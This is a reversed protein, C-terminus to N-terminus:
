LEKWFLVVSQVNTWCCESSINKGNVVKVNVLATALLTSCFVQTKSNLIEVTEPINISVQASNTILTNKDESNSGQESAMAQQNTTVLNNSGSSENKFDIHLLTNHKRHCKACNIKSFCSQPKHGPVLCNFCCRIKIAVERRKDIPLSKFQSCKFLIHSEKCLLCKSNASATHNKVSGSKSGKNKEFSNKALQIAELACIRVLLFENLQQYTPYDSTTGLQMEWEKLPLHM